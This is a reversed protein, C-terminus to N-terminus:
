SGVKKKKRLMRGRSEPPGARADACWVGRLVRREDGYFEHTWGCSYLLVRRTWSVMKKLFIVSREREM